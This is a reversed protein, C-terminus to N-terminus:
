TRTRSACTLSGRSTSVASSGCRVEAYTFTRVYKLTVSAPFPNREAPVEWHMPAEGVAVNNGTKIPLLLALTGQASLVEAIRALTGEATIADLALAVKGDGGVARAVDATLTASAYDFVHTAGLTRLFAHHKPSATALVNTYGAAHPLQLAYQSPTSGTGYV